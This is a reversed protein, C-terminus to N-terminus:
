LETTQVYELTVKKVYQIILSKTWQDSWKKTKRIHQCLTTIIIIISELGHKLLESPINDLGPSKGYKLAMIADRVEWELIPLPEENNNMTNKKM